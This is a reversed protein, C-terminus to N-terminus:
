YKAGAEFFEIHKQYFDRGLPGCDPFLTVFAARRRRREAEIVSPRLLIRLKTDNTPM